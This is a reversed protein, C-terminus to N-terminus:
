AAPHPLHEGRRGRQGSRHPRWASRHDLLLRLTWPGTGRGAPKTTYFPEFIKPLDQQAIGAGDDIVEVIAADIDSSGRRTRVMVMGEQKTADAANILLAMIVQIMQEANAPVPTLEPDPIARIQRKRFRAHHKV